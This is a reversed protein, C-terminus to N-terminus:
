HAVRGAITLLARSVLDATRARAAFGFADAYLWEDIQVAGADLAVVHIVTVVEAVPGLADLADVIDAIRGRMDAVRAAEVITDRLAVAEAAGTSTRTADLQIAAAGVAHLATALEDAVAGRADLRQRARECAFGAEDTAVPQAQLAAATFEFRLASVTDTELPLAEVAANDIADGIGVSRLVGRVLALSAIGRHAPGSPLVEARVCQADSATANGQAKGPFARAKDNAVTSADIGLTGAPSAAGGTTHGCGLILPEIAHGPERCVGALRYGTARTSGALAHRIGCTLSLRATTEIPTDLVGRAGASLAIPKGLHASAPRARRVCCAVRHGPCTLVVQRGFPLCANEIVITRAPLTAFTLLEIRCPHAEKGLALIPLEKPRERIL